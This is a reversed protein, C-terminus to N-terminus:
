RQAAEHVAASLQSKSMKGRGPISLAQARRRLEARTLQEHPGPDNGDADGEGSRAAPNMHEEVSTDGLTSRLMRDAGDRDFAPDPVIGTDGEAADQIGQMKSEDVGGVWRDGPTGGEPIHFEQDRDQIHGVTAMIEEADAESNRIQRSPRANPVLTPKQM